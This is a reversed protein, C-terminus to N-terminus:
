CYLLRPCAGKGKDGFFDDQTGEELIREIGQRKEVVYAM